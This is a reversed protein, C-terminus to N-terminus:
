AAVLFYEYILLKEEGDICFGLLWVLDKHQLKMILVENAFEILGQESDSLLRKVAIMKSDSLIGLNVLGGFIGDAISSIISIGLKRGNCQVLVNITDTSTFAVEGTAYRNSSSGFAAVKTLTLLTQNVVTKFREPESTNKMNYKPINGSVDLQGLFRKNSYLLQCDEEWVVAEENSPCLVTIDQSSTSIRGRCM